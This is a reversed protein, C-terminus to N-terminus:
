RRLWLMYGLMLSCRFNLRKSKISVQITRGTTGVSGGNRKELLGDNGGDYNGEYFYQIMCEVAEPPDEKLEINQKSAEAFAGSCARKFYRSKACIIIRPQTLVSILARYRKLRTYEGICRTSKRAVSSPSTPSSKMVTSSEPSRPDAPADLVKPFVM